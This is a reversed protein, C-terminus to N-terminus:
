GPSRIPPRMGRRIQSSDSSTRVRRHGALLPPPLARPRIALPSPRGTRFSSAMTAISARYHGDLVCGPRTDCRSVTGTPWPQVRGGNSGWISDCGSPSRSHPRPALSALALQAAIIAAASSMARAPSRWGAPQEDHEAVAFLRAVGAYRAGHRAQPREIGRYDTLWGRQIQRHRLAAQQHHHVEDRVAILAVGGVGSGRPARWATSVSAASRSFSGDSSCSLGCGSKPCGVIPM